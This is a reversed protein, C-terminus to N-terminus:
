CPSAARSRSARRASCASRRPRTAASPSARPSTTGDAAARRDRRDRLRAKATLEALRLAGHSAIAHAHLGDLQIDKIKTPGVELVADADLTEPVIGTGKIAVHLDTEVPPADAVLDASKGRGTLEVDYSPVGPKSADVTGALVLSTSRTKVEGHLVLKDLPGALSADFAVDDILVPHGLFAALKDHGVRGGIVRVDHEGSHAVLEAIALPGAALDHADADIRDGRRVVEVRGISLEATRVPAGPAAIALRAAVRDLVIDAEQAAPRADVSGAIALDDISITTGDPKTLTAAGAISLKAIRVRALPKGEAPKVLHTLNTTGDANQVIDAAVGDVRLETVLPSGDLVSGRDVDAVLTGIHIARRGSADTIDLDGLTVEGFLFTYDLKGLAVKGDVADGLKAEIRGRVFSKGWSTHIFILVLVALVVAVGILRVLIRLLRRLAKMLVGRGRSLIALLRDLGGDTSFTTDDMFRYALDIAVPLYWLRLRAGVGFAMSLGDAFANTGAGAGGADVFAAAGYQKRFPLFRLEASSEVLSRGGVLVPDCAATASAACASPSLHDRGFGRFGYTGGGFLRPGLPVGDAGPFLVWGSSVRAGISWKDDLPHFARGEVTLELWRHDSLAGGPAYSGHAALLWGDRAEIRDDRHDAVVDAVVDLGSATNSMPLALAQTTSPDLAPLDLTQAYRYFADLDFFVGPALAERVGPGVVYERLLASPYLVDSWRATVRLDLDRHIVRPLELQALASGYVGSGPEHNDGVLWGYGINGALVLHHEAGFM